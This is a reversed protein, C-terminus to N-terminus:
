DKGENEATTQALKLAALGLDTLVTPRAEAVKELTERDPYVCCLTGLDEAAKVAALSDTKGNPKIASAVTSRYRKVEVTKPTRVALQVPLGPTYPSVVVAVNSDGFEIELLNIQEQDLALQVDREASLRAKREDRTETKAALM